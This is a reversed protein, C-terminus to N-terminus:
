VYTPSHEASRAAGRSQAGCVVICICATVYMTFCLRVASQPWLCSAGLSVTIDPMVACHKASVVRPVGGPDPLRTLAGLDVIELTLEEWPWPTDAYEAPPPEHAQRLGRAQVWGVRDGLRLIAGLLDGALSGDAHLSYRASPLSRLTEEADRLLASSLAWGEVYVTTRADDRGTDWMTLDRMQRLASCLAAPQDTELIDGDAWLVVREASSIGQTASVCVCVCM